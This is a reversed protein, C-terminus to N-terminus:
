TGVWGAATIDVVQDDPGRYKVEYYSQGGAPQQHGLDLRGMASAGEEELKKSTAEVDDVVFGLHDIGAYGPVDRPSEGNGNENSKLIALNIYGDSLYFGTGAKGVEELDFVKKYFAATKEPDPTRIAVHKIKAM